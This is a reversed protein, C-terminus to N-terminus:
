LSVPDRSNKQKCKNWANVFKSSKDKVQELISTGNTQIRFEVRRNMERCRVSNECLPRSSSLGNATLKEISWEKINEEVNTLNTCYELVSRTRDRLNM